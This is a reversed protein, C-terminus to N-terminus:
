QKYFDKKYREFYTIIEKPNDVPIEKIEFVVERKPILMKSEELVEEQNIARFKYLKMKKISDLKVSLSFDFDKLKDSFYFFFTDKAYQVKGSYIEELIGSRPDKRSSILKILNKEFFEYVNFNIYKSVTSDVPLAKNNQPSFAHYFFGDKENKKYVFYNSGTDTKELEDAKFHYFHTPLQLMVMSDYYFINEFGEMYCMTKADSCLVPLKHSINLCRINKDSPKNRRYYSNGCNLFFIFVGGFFIFRHM